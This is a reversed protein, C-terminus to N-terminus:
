NYFMMTYFLKKQIANKQKGWFPFKRKMDFCSCHKRLLSIKIIREWKEEIILYLDTLEIDISTLIQLNENETFGVHSPQTEGVRM